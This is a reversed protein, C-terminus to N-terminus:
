ILHIKRTPWSSTEPALGKEMIGSGKDLNDGMRAIGMDEGGEIFVERERGMGRKREKGNKEKSREREEPICNVM